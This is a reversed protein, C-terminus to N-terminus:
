KNLGSDLIFNQVEKLRKESQAGLAVTSFTMTWISLFLALVKFSSTIIKAFSKFNTTM